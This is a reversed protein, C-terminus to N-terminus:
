LPPAPDRRALRILPGTPRSPSRARAANDLLTVREHAAVAQRYIRGATSDSRELSKCEPPTTGRAIGEYFEQFQLAHLGGWFGPFKITEGNPLEIVQLPPPPFLRGPAAKADSIKCLFKAM